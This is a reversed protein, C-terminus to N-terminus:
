TLSYYRNIKQVTATFPIKDDYKKIQEALVASGTFFVHNSGGMSFQVTTYNANEKFKSMGIKYGLILIEKNLISDISVKEGDLKKPEEAFDSFKPPPNL